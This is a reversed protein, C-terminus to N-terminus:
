GEGVKSVLDFVEDPCMNLETPQLKFSNSFFPKGECKLHFNMEYNKRAIKEIRM